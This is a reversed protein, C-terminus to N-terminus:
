DGYPIYLYKTGPSLTTAFVRCNNASFGVCSYRMLRSKYLEDICVTNLCYAEVKECSLGPSAYRLVLGQIVSVEM